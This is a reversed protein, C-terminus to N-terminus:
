NCYQSKLSNYAKVIEKVSSSDANLGTFHPIAQEIGHQKIFSQIQQADADNEADYLFAAAVGKCLHTNPVGYKECLSVPGILRENNSLKRLPERCVRSIPDKVNPTLYRGIVIDIYANFDEGSFDFKKKLMEASEEMATRVDKMVEKNHFSELVFPYNRLYGYFGALVHACNVVYLKRELYKDLNNTYIAGKIPVSTPDVLRNQEIPLEHDPRAEVGKDGDVEVAFVMRDVATNPFCAISNLQQEDIINTDIIAKKLIDTARIANECAVVNIKCGNIELRKKLGRAILPAVKPLNNAWVATTVIEAVSIAEVVDDAQTLSCLGSVNDIVKKISHDNIRYLNYYGKDTLQKMMAEDIDVFTVHYGTDHLLEGIFGRGITGAGFHIATNM